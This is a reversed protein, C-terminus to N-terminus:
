ISHILCSRSLLSLLSSNRLTLTCNSTVPLKQLQVQFKIKKLQVFCVVHESTFDYWCLSPLPGLFVSLDRPLIVLHFNLTCLLVGFISLDFVLARSVFRSLTLPRKSSFLQLFFTQQDVAEKQIMKAKSKNKNQKFSKSFM